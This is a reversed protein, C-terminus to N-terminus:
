VGEVHQEWSLGLYGIWGVGDLGMGDWGLVDWGMWEVCGICEGADGGGVWGDVMLGVM